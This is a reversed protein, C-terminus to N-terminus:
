IELETALGGLENLQCGAKAVSGRSGSYWQLTSVAECHIM